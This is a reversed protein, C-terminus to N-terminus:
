NMSACIKKAEGIVKDREKPIKNYDANRYADGGCWWLKDGVKKVVHWLKDADKADRPGAFLFYHADGIKETKEVKTKMELAFWEGYKAPDTPLNDGVVPNFAFTFEANDVPFKSQNVAVVTELKGGDAEDARDWGAPLADLKIAATPAAPAASGSGASGDSGAMASGSGAGTDSGSGAMASGSGATDSGSVVPSGAGPTMETKKKKCASFTCLAVVMSIGFMKMRSNM